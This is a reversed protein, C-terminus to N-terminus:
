GPTGCISVNDIDLSYFFVSQYKVLQVKMYVSMVLRVQWGCSAKGYPYKTDLRNAGTRTWPLVDDSCGNPM